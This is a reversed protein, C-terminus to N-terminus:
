IPSAPITFCSRSQRKTGIGERLDIWVALFLTFL